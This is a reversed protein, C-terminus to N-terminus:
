DKLVLLLDDITKQIFRDDLAATTKGSRWQQWDGRKQKGLAQAVTKRLYQDPLKDPSLFAHMLGNQPHYFVYPGYENHITHLETINHLQIHAPVNRQLLPLVDITSPLPVIQLHAHNVTQGNVGQEFSAVPGYIMRMKGKLKHVFRDLEELDHEPMEGLCTYHTKPAVIVNGGDTIQGLAPVAYFNKSLALVQERPRYNCFVCTM